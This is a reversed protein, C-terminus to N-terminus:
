RKETSVNFLSVQIERGKEHQLGVLIYNCHYGLFSVWHDNTKVECQLRPCNDKEFKSTIGLISLCYVTLLPQVM